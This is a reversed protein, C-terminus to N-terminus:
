CKDESGSYRRPKIPAWLIWRLQLPLWLYWNIIQDGLRARPPPKDSFFSTRLARGNYKSLAIRETNFLLIFKELTFHIFHLFFKQRCLRASVGVADAVSPGLQPSPVQKVKRAHRTHDGPKHSRSRTSGELFSLSVSALLLRLAGTTKKKGSAFYLGLVPYAAALVITVRLCELAGNCTVIPNRIENGNETNQCHKTTENEDVSYRAKLDSIQSRSRRPIVGSQLM